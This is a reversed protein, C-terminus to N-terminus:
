MVYDKGEFCVKGKVCVEVVFGIEVLDDFLVIEVKIFGKEFDM